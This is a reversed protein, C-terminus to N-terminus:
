RMMRQRLCSSLKIEWSFVALYRYASSFWFYTLLNLNGNDSISSSVLHLCAYFSFVLNQKTFGLVAFCKGDHKYKMQEQDVKSFPVIDSGYQFGSFLFSTKISLFHARWFKRMLTEFLKRVKSPIGRRCRQKTTM